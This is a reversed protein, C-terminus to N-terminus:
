ITTQADTLITSASEIGLAQGDFSLSYTLEFIENESTVSVVQNIDKNAIDCLGFEVGQNNILMQYQTGIIFTFQDISVAKRFGPAAYSYASKWDEKSLASIQGLIHEQVLGSEKSNCRGDALEEFASSEEVTSTQACATLSVLAVLVGVIWKV